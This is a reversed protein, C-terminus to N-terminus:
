PLARWRSLLAPRRRSSARCPKRPSTDPCCCTTCAVNGCRSNCGSAVGAAAWWCSACTRIPCCCRPPTSCATWARCRVSTARSCWTSAPGWNCGRRRRGPRPRGSSAENEPIPYYEVPTAGALPSVAAVFGRSQVLLLDCRRYIWRVVQAVAWLVRQDQVFGTAQLSEPWLDQVWLVLPARKLWHLVVAPIAQLIPSTGYVFIADFKMGRLLWPALLTASGLFSLYNLGLAFARGKGRPVLPVRFVAIGEYSERVTGAARYGEYVRGGPYNPKGTLVTVECGAERLHLALENIRFAEPWFHQSLILVRVAPVGAAAPGTRDGLRLAGALRRGRGRLPAGGRRHVGAVGPRLDAGARLCRARLRTRAGPHSHRPRASRAAATRLDRGAVPFILASSCRLRQLVEARPLCGLNEVSPLDAPALGAERWAADFEAPRLTLGLRPFQRSAALQAWAQLLTAHNKHAIGDAPYFFFRGAYDAPARAPAGQPAARLASVVEDDVFPVVQVKATPHEAHLARAMTATQVWVEDCHRLGWRFWLRELTMRAETMPGYRVRRDRGVLYPAQVYNVVRGRARLLPPLSNFCFLLDQPGM